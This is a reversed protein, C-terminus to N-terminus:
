QPDDEIRIIFNRNGFYDHRRGVQGLLNRGSPVLCGTGAVHLQRHVTREGDTSEVTGVDLDCALDACFVDVDEAQSGALHDFPPHGPVGSADGKFGIRVDVPDNAAQGVPCEACFIVLQEYRDYSGQELAAIVIQVEAVKRVVCLLVLPCSPVETVSVVPRSPCDDINRSTRAKGTVPGNAFVGGADPVQPLDDSYRCYPPFPTSISSIDSPPQRTTLRWSLRRSATIAGLKRSASTARISSPWRFITSSMLWTLKM